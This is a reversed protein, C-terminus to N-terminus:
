LLNRYTGCLKDPGFWLIGHNTKPYKHHLYHIDKLKKFFIYNNLWHNKIHFAYHLYDNAWGILIGEIIIFFFVWWEKFLFWIPVCLLLMAVTIIPIFVLTSRSSGAGRYSTSEFNDIPYLAHHVNHDKALHKLRNSHLIRHVIYGSFSGFIFLSLSILIIVIVEYM